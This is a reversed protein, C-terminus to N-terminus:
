QAADLQLADEPFMELYAQARLDHVLRDVAEKRVEQRLTEQMDLFSPINDARRDLLLIVHWGFETEVPARTYEGTELALAAEAFAPDMRDPHFYGLDGGRAASAGTSHERALSIFVAGDDLKAIVAEAEEKSELLIHRARIQRNARRAAVMADYRRRLAATTVQEALYRELLVGSLVRDEYRRLRRRVVPDETLGRERAADALLRLDVLRDLLAPFVSEIRDRYRPPLDEASRVVETWRIEHGNVRAVVPNEKNMQELADRLRAVEPGTLDEQVGSEVGAQTEIEPLALPLPDTEVGAAQAPAFRALAVVFGLV